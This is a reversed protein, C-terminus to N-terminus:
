RLHPSYDGSRESSPPVAGGQSSHEDDKVESGKLRSKVAALSFDERTGVKGRSVRLLQNVKILRNGQRPIGAPDREAHTIRVTLTAANKAIRDDPPRGRRPGSRDPWAPRKDIKDDSILQASNRKQPLM